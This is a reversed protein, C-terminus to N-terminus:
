PHPKHDNIVKGLQMDSNKLRQYAEQHDMKYLTGLIDQAREILKNNICAVDIMYPGAVKGMKIMVASSIFNLIKKTATGAKMRTSGAVVENGSNMAIIASCFPLEKETADSQIMVAYAGRNKAFALASQVYYATGSASIGIVVDDKQVNMLLMEPVASADEEFDSEIEIAADAIGGSVICLIRDEPFGYTCPIEVADMAAIRGSSGSGVYILRGGQSIKKSITDTVQILEPLSDILREGAEQEAKWFIELLGTTSMNQLQIDKQYPIETKISQYSKLVQGSRAVSEGKALAIAGILQLTNGEKLVTVRVPKDLEAPTESLRKTLENELPYDCVTVADALGGCIMVEDLNYLIAATNIIKTLNELYELRVRDYDPHTLVQELNNDPDSSALMSASALTDFLGAPTRVSGLLTLMKGQRWRRGNRWVAFGLGTGVPMIGVTKKGSLLASECIGIMAADADNIIVVPCEFKDELTRIWESNQLVTLHGASKLVRKGAYDVIGATSIGIGALAHESIGLESTLQQVSGIFDQVTAQRSLPSKVRVTKALMEELNGPLNRNASNLELTCGKIWTGGIDIGLFCSRFGKKKNPLQM